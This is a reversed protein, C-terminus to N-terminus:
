YGQKANKAIKALSFLRPLDKPPQFPKNERLDCLGCLFCNL